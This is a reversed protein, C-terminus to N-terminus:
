RWVSWDLLVGEGLGAFGRVLAGFDEEACCAVCGRYFGGPFDCVAGVAEGVEQPGAGDGEGSGVAGEVGHAFGHEAVGFACDYGM